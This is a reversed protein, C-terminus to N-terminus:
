DITGLEKCRAVEAAWRAEADVVAQKAEELAEALYRLRYESADAEPKELEAVDDRAGVLEKLASERRWVAVQRVLNELVADFRAGIALSEWKDNEAAFVNFQEVVKRDVADLKPYDDLPYPDALRDSWRWVDAQETWGGHEINTWECQAGLTRLVERVDDRDWGEFFDITRIDLGRPPPNWRYLPFVLPDRSKVPTWDDADMTEPVQELLSRDFKCELDDGFALIEPDAWCDISEEEEWEQEDSEDEEDSDDDEEDEDSEEEELEGEELEPSEDDRELDEDM